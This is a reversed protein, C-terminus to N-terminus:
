SGYSVAALILVTVAILTLMILLSVLIGFASDERIEVKQAERYADTFVNALRRGAIRVQTMWRVRLQLQPYTM